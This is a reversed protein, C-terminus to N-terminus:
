FYKTSNNEQDYIWTRNEITTEIYTTVFIYLAFIIIPLFINKLVNIM